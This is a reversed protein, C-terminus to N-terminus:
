ISLEEWLKQIEQNELLSLECLDGFDKYTLNIDKVKPVDTWGVKETKINKTSSYNPIIYKKVTSPAPTGGLARSVGAYTKIQLYLENMKIILEDNIITRGM